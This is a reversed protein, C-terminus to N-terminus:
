GATMATPKKCRSVVRPVVIANGIGWFLRRRAQNTQFTLFYVNELVLRVHNKLM